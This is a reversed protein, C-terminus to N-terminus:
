AVLHFYFKRVQASDAPTAKSISEMHYHWQQFWDQFGNEPIGCLLMMNINLTLLGKGRGSMKSNEFSDVRDFMEAHHLIDHFTFSINRPM